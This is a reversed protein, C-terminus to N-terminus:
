CFFYKKAHGNPLPSALFKRTFGIEHPRAGRDEGKAAGTAEMRLFSRHWLLENVVINPRDQEISLRIFVWVAINIYTRCCRSWGNTCGNVPRKELVVQTFWYWIPSVLRSKFSALSSPTTPHCHCWSSWICVIEVESWVSLWYGIVVGGWWEIKVSRISKRVGLWCHWVRDV